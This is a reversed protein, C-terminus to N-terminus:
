GEGRNTEDWSRPPWPPALQDFVLADFPVVDFADADFAKIATGM